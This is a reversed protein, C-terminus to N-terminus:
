LDVARERHAVADFHHGIEDSADLGAVPVVARKEVDETQWGSLAPHVSALATMLLVCQHAVREPPEGRGSWVVQVRIPGAM